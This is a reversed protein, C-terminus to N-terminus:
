PEEWSRQPFSVTVAYPGRVWGPCPGRTQPRDQLDAGVEKGVRDGWSVYSPPLRDAGRAGQGGRQGAPVLVSQTDSM